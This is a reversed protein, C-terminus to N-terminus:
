PAIRHLGNEPAIQTLRQPTLIDQTLSLLRADIDAQVTPAVYREPIAQRNVLILSRATWLSPLFVAMSLAATVVFLFPLVALVRRRRVIELLGSLGPGKPSEDYVPPPTPMSNVELSRPGRRRVEAHRQGRREQGRPQLQIPDEAHNRQQGQPPDHDQRALRLRPLRRGARDGRAGHYRGQAAARRAEASRRARLR